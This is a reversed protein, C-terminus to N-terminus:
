RSKIVSHTSLRRKEPIEEQLATLREGLSLINSGLLRQLPDFLQSVSVMWGLCHLLLWAFTKWHFSRLYKTQLSKSRFPVRNLIRKWLVQSYIHNERISGNPAACVHFLTKNKVRIELVLSESLPSPISNSPHHPLLGTHRGAAQVGLVQFETSVAALNLSRM